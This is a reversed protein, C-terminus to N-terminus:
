EMKIETVKTSAREHRVTQIRNGDSFEVASRTRAPLDLRRRAVSLSLRPVRCRASARRQQEIRAPDAMQAPLLLQALEAAEHLPQSLPEGHDAIVLGPAAQQIPIPYIQREVRLHGRRQCHGVRDADATEYSAISM